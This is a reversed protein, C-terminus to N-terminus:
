IKPKVCGKKVCENIIFRNQYFNIHISIIHIPLYKM